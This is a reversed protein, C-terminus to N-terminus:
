EKSMIVYAISTYNGHATHDTVIKLPEIWNVSISAMGSRYNFLPFLKNDDAYGNPRHESKDWLKSAMALRAMIPKIIEDPIHSIDAYTHPPQIWNVAIQSKNADFSVMNFTPTTSLVKVNALGIRFLGNSYAIFWREGEFLNVTTNITANNIKTRLDGTKRYGDIENVIDAPLSLSQKEGYYVNILSEVTNSGLLPITPLQKNQINCYSSIATRLRAEDRQISTALHTELGNGNIHEKFKKILYPVNKSRVLNSDGHIGVYLPSDNRYITPATYDKNGVNIQYLVTNNKGVLHFATETYSENYYASFVSLRNNTANIIGTVLRKAGLKNLLNDIEIPNFTVDKM